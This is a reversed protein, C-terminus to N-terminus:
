GALAHAVVMAFAGLVMPVTVAFTIQVGPARGLTGDRHYGWWFILRGLVFFGTALPLVQLHARPLMTALALAAISFAVLQELHNQMVRCDIALSPSPTHAIPDHTGQLFRTTTIKLCVLFYPMVAIANCQLAFAIREGRGDIAPPPVVWLHLAVIGLLVLPLTWWVSGLIRRQRTRVGTAEESM